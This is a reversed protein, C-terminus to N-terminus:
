FVKWPSGFVFSPCGFLVYALREKWALFLRGVRKAVIKAHLIHVAFLANTTDVMIRHLIKLMNFM